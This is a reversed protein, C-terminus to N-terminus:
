LLLPSLPSRRRSIYVFIAFFTGPYALGRLRAGFYPPQGAPVVGIYTGREHVAGGYYRIPLDSPRSGSPVSAFWILFSLGSIFAKRQTIASLSRGVTQSQLIGLHALRPLFPCGPRPITNEMTLFAPSAQDKPASPLPYMHHLAVLFESAGTSQDSVICVRLSSPISQGGKHALHFM